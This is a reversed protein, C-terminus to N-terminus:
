SSTRKFWVIGIVAVAIATLTAIPNIAQLNTSITIIFAVFTVLSVLILAAGIISNKHKM